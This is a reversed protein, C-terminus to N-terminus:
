VCYDVGTFCCFGADDNQLGTWTIPLTLSTTQIQIYNV